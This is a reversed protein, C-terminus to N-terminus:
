ARCFIGRTEQPFKILNKRRRSCLWVKSVRQGLTEMVDDLSTIEQNKTQHAIATGEASTAGNKQKELEFYTYVGNSLDNINTKAGM